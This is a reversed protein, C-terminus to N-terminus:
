KGVRVDSALIYGDVRPFWKLEKSVAYLVQPTFLPIGVVDDEVAIKMVKRMDDLRKVPDIEVSIGEVLDDLEENAYGGGNYQGYTGSRSHLVASYLDNADGLESRWGFFYFESEGNKIKAELEEPKNIVVELDIGTDALTDKIFKGMADFGTPLDLALSVRDLPSGEKVLDGAKAKNLEPIKIAPDYGHIGPSVFQSSPKTFGFGLRSIEQRDLSLNIAERLEQARSQDHFGFMLFSVELGPFQELVFRDLQKYSSFDLAIDTPVDIMMDVENGALLKQREERTPVNRLEVAVFKPVIGWYEDFRKLSVGSNELRSIFQYPGTGVPANSIDTVDKPFILVNSLKYLLLADPKETTIRFVDEGRREFSKITGLMDTIGSKESDRAYNLSYEVDEIDLLSGDHFRVGPRLRFEWTLPDISGMNIALAPYIELNRDVYVLSEYINVLYQKETVNGSAPNLSGAGSSLAVVLGSESKQDVKKILKLTQDLRDPFFLRGSVFVFLLIFFLFAM